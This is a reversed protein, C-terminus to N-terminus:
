TRSAPQLDGCGCWPIAAGQFFRSDDSSFCQIGVRWCRARPVYLRNPKNNFLCSNAQHRKTDDCYIGGRHSDNRRCRCGYAAGDTIAFVFRANTCDSICGCDGDDRCSDFCQGAYSWGHCRAVLDAASTSCIKGSCWGIVLPVCNDADHKRKAM